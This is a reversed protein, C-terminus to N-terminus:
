TRWFRMRFWLLVFTAGVWVKAMTGLPSLSGGRREPVPRGVISAGNKTFGQVGQWDYEIDKEISLNKFKHPFATELFEMMEQRVTNNQPFRITDNYRGMKESKWQGYLYPGNNPRQFLWHFCEQYGLSHELQEHKGDATNPSIGIMQASCGFVGDENQLAPVISTVYANTAHLVARARVQGKSTTLIYPHSSTNDHDVKRVPTFPHLTLNKM